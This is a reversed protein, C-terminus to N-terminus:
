KQGSFIGRGLRALAERLGDDAIAAVAQALRAEDVPAPATVDPHPRRRPVPGQVVRIHAIAAYGFYTNVRETLQGVEHQLLLARPGDARVRLVAGGDQAAGRPWDIREPHSCDAYRAGVIEPWAAVLDAKAFARKASMPALVDTVLESLKLAKRAPAPSDPVANQAV